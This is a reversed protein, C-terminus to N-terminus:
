SNWERTWHISTSRIKELGWKIIGVNAFIGWTFNVSSGVSGRVTTGNYLSTFQLVGNHHHRHHHRCNNNNSSNNNNNNNNYVIKIKFNSAILM